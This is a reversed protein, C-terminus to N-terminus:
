LVIAYRCVANQFNRCIKDECVRQDCPTLPEGPACQRQWPAPKIVSSVIPDAIFGLIYLNKTVGSLSRVYYNYFCVSIYSKIQDAIYFTLTIRLM